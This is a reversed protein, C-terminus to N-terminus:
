DEDVTPVGTQEGIGAKVANLASVAANALVRLEASAKKRDVELAVVFSFLASNAAKLLDLMEKDCWQKRKPQIWSACFSAINSFPKVGDHFLDADNENQIRVLAEVGYKAPAIREHIEILAQLTERERTRVREETAVKAGAYVTLALFAMAGSALLESAKSLLVGAGKWLTVDIAPLNASWNALAALVVCVLCFVVCMVPKM